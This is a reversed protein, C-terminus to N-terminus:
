NPINWSSKEYLKLFKKTWTGSFIKKSSFTKFFRFNKEGYKEFCYANKLVLFPDIKSPLYTDAFRKRPYPWTVPLNQRLFNWRPFNQRSFEVYPFNWRHFIGGISFEGQPFNWRHFIGGSSFEVQTFNGRRFTRDMSLEVLPFTFILIHSGNVYGLILFTFNMLDQGLQRYALGEGERLKLGVKMFSAFHASVFLFVNKRNKNKSNDHINM